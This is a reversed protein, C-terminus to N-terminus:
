NTVKTKFNGTRVAEAYSQTSGKQIAFWDTAAHLSREVEKPKMDIWESIIVPMTPIDWEKRKLMIFAGYMGIQEQLGSHSHYWHTGNQVIPFRYTYTSHPKIPMQTLYPVGDEKNPLFLGHWHLATEENLQNHVVIEATDGETFTLTPMPIQGNVAIARKKKKGFTVLTDTIYLDYHVTRPPTNNVVTKIKGLNAKAKDMEETTNMPMNGMDMNSSKATDKKMNMNDMPMNGMVMDKKKATDKPMQMEDHKKVPQQKVQKPKEKVLKMGCKPCNGPKTSHIEPHMPCTYTEQQQKTEKKTMNMGKMVQAQAFFYTALILIILTIKKM